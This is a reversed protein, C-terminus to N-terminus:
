NLNLDKNEQLMENINRNGLEKLIAFGKARSKKDGFFMLNKGYAFKIAVDNPQQKHLKKLILRTRIKYLKSLTNYFEDFEVVELLKETAVPNKTSKLISVAQKKFRRTETQAYEARTEDFKNICATIEQDTLNKSYIKRKIEGLKKLYAENSAREFDFYFASLALLENFGSPKINKAAADIKEDKESSDKISYWKEVADIQGLRALYQIKRKVAFKNKGILYRSWVTIFVDDLKNFNKELM